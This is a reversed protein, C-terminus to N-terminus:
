RAEREKNVLEEQEGAALATDLATGASLETEVFARRDSAFLGKKPEERRVVSARLKPTPYLSLVPAEDLDGELEFVPLADAYADALVSVDDLLPDVVERNFGDCLKSGTPKVWAFAVYTEMPELPALELTLDVLAGDEDPCARRVKQMTTVGQYRHELAVYVDVAEVLAERTAVSIDVTAPPACGVLAASVVAFALPLLRLKNHM